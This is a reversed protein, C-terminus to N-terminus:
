SSFLPCDDLTVSQVWMLLGHRSDGKKKAAAM